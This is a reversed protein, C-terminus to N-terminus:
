VFDNPQTAESLRAIEDLRHRELLRKIMQEIRRLRRASRVLVRLQDTARDIESLSISAWHDDGCQRYLEEGVDRIRSIDSLQDAGLTFDIVIDRAM